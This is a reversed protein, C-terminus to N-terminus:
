KWLDKLTKKVGDYSTFRYSQSYKQSSHVRGCLNCPAGNGRVTWGGRDKGKKFLVLSGKSNYYRYLETSGVLTLVSVHGDQYLDVLEADHGGVISNPGLCDTIVKACFDIDERKYIIAPGGMQNKTASGIVIFNQESKYVKYGDPVVIGNVLRIQQSPQAPKNAKAQEQKDGCGAMFSSMLCMGIVIVIKLQM